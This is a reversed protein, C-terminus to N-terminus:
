SLAVALYNLNRSFGQVNSYLIRCAGSVHHRPGPNTEVDPFQSELCTDLILHLSVM